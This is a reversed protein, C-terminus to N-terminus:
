KNNFENVFSLIERSVVTWKAQNVMTSLAQYDNDEIQIETVKEREAKEVIDLIRIRLSIDSISYGGEVPTNLAVKILDATRVDAEVETNNIIIKESQKKLQITKMRKLIPKFTM